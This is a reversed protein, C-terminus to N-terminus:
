DEKKYNIANILINSISRKADESILDLFFIAFIHLASGPDFGQDILCKIQWCKQYILEDASSRIDNSLNYFDIIKHVYHVFTSYISEADSDKAVNSNIDKLINNLQYAITISNNRMGEHNDDFLEDFNGEMTGVVTMGSKADYVVPENQISDITDTVRDFTSKVDEPKSAPIKDVPGDSDIGNGSIFDYIESKKDMLFEKFQDDKIYSYAFLWSLGVIDKKDKRLITENENKQDDNLLTEAVNIAPKVLDDVDETGLEESDEFDMDVDDFDLGMLRDQIESASEDTSLADIVSKKAAEIISKIENIDLKDEDSERKNELLVNKISTKYINKIDMDIDHKSKANNKADHYIGKIGSVFANRAYRALRKMLNSKKRDSAM